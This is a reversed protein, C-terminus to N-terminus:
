STAKPNLSCCNDIFSVKIILIICTLTALLVLGRFSLAGIIIPYYYSFCFWRVLDEFEDMEKM